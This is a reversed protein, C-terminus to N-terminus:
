PLEPDPWNNRVFTAFQQKTSVLGAQRAIEYSVFASGQLLYDDVLETKRAAVWADRTAQDWASWVKTMTLTTAGLVLETSVLDYALGPRNWDVRVIEVFRYQGLEAGLHSADVPSVIRKKGPLELAPPYDNWRRVISAETIPTDTFRVVCVETM